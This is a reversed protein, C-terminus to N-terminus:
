MDHMEYSVSNTLIKIKAINIRFRSSFPSWIVKKLRLASTMKFFIVFQLINHVTENASQPVGYEHINM